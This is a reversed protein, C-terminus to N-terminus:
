RRRVEQQDRPRVLRPGVGPFARHRPQTAEASRGAEGLLRALVMHGDATEPYAEVVARTAALAENFAGSVELARAEAIRGKFTGAGAVAAARFAAQSEVQLRRSHYLEGLRLQAAVLDPKLAVAAKYGAMAKAEKGKCDFIYALWYHATPIRLNGNLAATFAEAAQELRGLDLLAMGLDHYSKAVGPDLKTSRRLLPIAEAPSGESILRAGDRAFRGADRTRATSPQASKPAASFIGPAGLVPVNANPIPGKSLVSELGAAPKAPQLLDAVSSRRGRGGPAKAAAPAWEGRGRRSKAM